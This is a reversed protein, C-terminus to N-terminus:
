SHKMVEQAELLQLYVGVYFILGKFEALVCDCMGAVNWRADIAVFTERLAKLIM